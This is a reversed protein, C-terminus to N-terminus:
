RECDIWDARWELSVGCTAGDFLCYHASSFFFLFLSCSATWYIGSPRNSDCVLAKRSSGGNQFWPGIYGTYLDLGHRFHHGIRLPSWEGSTLFCQWIIEGTIEPNSVMLRVKTFAVPWDLLSKADQTKRRLPVYFMVVNRNSHFVCYMM